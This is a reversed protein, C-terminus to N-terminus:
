AKARRGPFATVFRPFDADNDIIWISRVTPTRGDPAKLPGDIVYKTGHPSPQERLIDNSQLHETLAAALVDPESATFGFEALFRAKAGGRRHSPAMLYDTIKRLDIFARDSNPVRAM